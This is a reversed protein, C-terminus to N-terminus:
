AKVVGLGALIEDIRAEWGGQHVVFAVAKSRAATYDITGGAWEKAAAGDTFIYCALTEPSDVVYVPSEGSRALEWLLRVRSGVAFEVNNGHYGHFIGTVPKKRAEKVPRNLKKMREKVVTLDNSGRPFVEEPFQGEIAEIFRQWRPGGIGQRFPQAKPFLDWTRQDTPRTAPIDFDGSVMVREGNKHSSAVVFPHRWSVVDGVELSAVPHFEQVGPSTWTGHKPEGPFELDDFGTPGRTLLPSASWRDSYFCLALMTGDSRWGNVHFLQQVFSADKMVGVVVDMRDPSSRIRPRRASESFKKEWGVWLHGRHGVRTDPLPVADLFIEWERDTLTIKLCEVETPTHPQMEFRYPGTETAALETLAEAVTITSRSIGTVVNTAVAWRSRLNNRIVLSEALPSPGCSPPGPIALLFRNAGRPASGTFM